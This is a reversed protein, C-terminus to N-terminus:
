CFACGMMCKRQAEVAEAFALAAGEAYGAHWQEAHTAMALHEDVAVAAGM